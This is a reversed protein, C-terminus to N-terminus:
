GPFPLSKKWGKRPVRWSDKIEGVGWLPGLGERDKIEEVWAVWIVWVQWETSRNYGFEQGRGVMRQRRKQDPQNAKKDEKKGETSIEFYFRNGKNKNAGEKNNKAHLEWGDDKVEGTGGTEIQLLLFHECFKRPGQCCISRPESELQAM